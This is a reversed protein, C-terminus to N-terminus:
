AALVRCRTRSYIQMEEEELALGLLMAGDLVPEEAAQHAGNTQRHLKM